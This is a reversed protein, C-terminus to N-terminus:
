SSPTSLTNFTIILNPNPLLFFHIYPFGSGMIYPWVIKVFETTFAWVVNWIRNRLYKPALFETYLSQIVQSKVDRNKPFSQRRIRTQSTPSSQGALSCGWGSRPAARYCLLNQFLLFLVQPAPPAEKQTNSTVVYWALTTYLAKSLWVSLWAQCFYSLLLTVAFTHCCFHSLLPSTFFQSMM